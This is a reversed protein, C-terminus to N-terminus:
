ISLIKGSRDLVFKKVAEADATKENAVADLMAGFIGWSVYLVDPTPKSKEGGFWRCLIELLVEQVQNEAVPRYLREEPPCQGNLYLFFDYTTQVLKALSKRDARDRTPLDPGLMRLFSDRVVYNFLDFKDEFHAYFTSRNVDAAAAIDQVSVDRLSIRGLTELFAKAIAERTKRVRRDNSPVDSRNM